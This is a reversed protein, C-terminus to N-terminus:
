LIMRLGFDRVTFFPFTQVWRYAFKHHFKLSILFTIQIFSVQFEIYFNAKCFCVSTLLIILCFEAQFYDNSIICNGARDLTLGHLWQFKNWCLHVCIDLSFFFFFFLQILESEGQLLRFVNNATWVSM